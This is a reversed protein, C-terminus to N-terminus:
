KSMTNIEDSNKWSFPVRQVFCEAHWSIYRGVQCMTEKTLCYKAGKKFVEFDLFKSGPIDLDQNDTPVAPVYYMGNLSGLAMSPFNKYFDDGLIPFSVYFPTRHGKRKNNTITFLATNADYLQKRNELFRSVTQSHDVDYIKAVQLGAM